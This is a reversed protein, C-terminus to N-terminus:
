QCQLLGFVTHADQRCAAALAREGQKGMGQGARHRAQLIMLLVNTCACMRVTGLQSRGKVHCSGRSMIAHKVSCLALGDPEALRGLVLRQNSHRFALAITLKSKCTLACTCALLHIGPAAASLTNLIHQDRSIIDVRGRREPSCWVPSAMPRCCVSQLM